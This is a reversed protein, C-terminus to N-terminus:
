IVEWLALNNVWSATLSGNEVASCKVRASLGARVAYIHQRIVVASSSCVGAYFIVFM